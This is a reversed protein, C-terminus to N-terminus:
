HKQYVLSQPPNHKNDIHSMVKPTNRKKVAAVASHHYMDWVKQLSVVKRNCKLEKGANTWLLPYCSVAEDCSLKSVDAQWGKWFFDGYFDALNGSFCFSMFRNYDLGTSQWQLGNPGYYFVHNINNNDIGGINLAFFGGVADDAILLYGPIEGESRFSKGKNWEPLSRNLRKCGGGLIRIWGHNILIGGYDSNLENLASIAEPPVSTLHTLFLQPDNRSGRNGLGEKPLVEVNNKASTIWKSIIGNVAIFHENSKSIEKGTTQSKCGFHFLLLVITIIYAQKM